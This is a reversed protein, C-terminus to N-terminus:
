ADEETNTNIDPGGTSNAIPSTVPGAPVSSPLAPSAGPAASSGGPPMGGPRASPHVRGSSPRRIRPKKVAAGAAFPRPLPRVARPTHADWTHVPRRGRADHASQFDTNKLELAEPAPASPSSTEDRLAKGATM